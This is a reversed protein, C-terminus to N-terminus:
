SILGVSFLLAWILIDLHLLIFTRLWGSVEICVPLSLCDGEMRQCLFCGACPLLLARVHCFWCQPKELLICWGPMWFCHQTSRDRSPCLLMLLVLFLCDWIWVMLFKREIQNSLLIFIQIIAGLVFFFFSAWVLKRSVCWFLLQPAPSSSGLCFRQGRGLCCCMKRVPVPQACACPLVALGPWSKGQTGFYFDFIFVCRQTQWFLCYQVSRKLNWPRLLM